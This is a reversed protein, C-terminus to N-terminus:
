YRVVAPNRREGGFFSKYTLLQIVDDTQVKVAGKDILYMGKGLEYWSVYSATTEFMEFVPVELLEDLFIPKMDKFM